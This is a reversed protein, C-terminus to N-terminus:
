CIASLRPRAIQQFAPPPRDNALETAENALVTADSNLAEAVPVGQGGSATFLHTKDDDEAPTM